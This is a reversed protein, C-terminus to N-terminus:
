ENLLFRKAQLLELYLSLPFVFLCVFLGALALLLILILAVVLQM